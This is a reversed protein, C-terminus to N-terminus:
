SAIRFWDANTVRYRNVFHSREALRAPELIEYRPRQVRILGEAQLTKLSRNTQVLSLGVCDAIQAQVFPFDFWPRPRVAALADRAQVQLLLHGVRDAAPLRRAARAADVSVIHDNMSIGFFLTALMASRASARVYAQKGFRGLVCDTVAEVTSTSYSWNIDELGVVDGPQYIRHIHRSGNALCTLGILWGSAVIFLPVDEDGEHYVVQRQSVTRRTVDIGSLAAVVEDSADVQRRVRRVFAALLQEREMNM